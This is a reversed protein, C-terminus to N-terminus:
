VEWDTVWEWVVGVEAHKVEQNWESSSGKFFQCRASLLLRDVRNVRPGHHWLEKNKFELCNSLYVIIFIYTVIILLISNLYCYFSKTQNKRNLISYNIDKFRFISIGCIIHRFRDSFHSSDLYLMWIMM